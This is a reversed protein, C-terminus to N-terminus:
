VALAKTDLEARTVQYNVFRRYVCFGVRRNISLIATNSEANSTRM